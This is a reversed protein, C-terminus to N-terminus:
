DIRHGKGRVTRILRMGNQSDTKRRLYCIYVETKNASSEGILSAIEEKSVTSGRNELLCEMIKCEVPTLAIEHGGDSVFTKKELDLFLERDGKTESKPLYTVPASPDQALCSLVERRLLRVEFPRHLIMSCQRHSDVTLLDSHKTFGIMQRYCGSPPPTASDLDLLVVQSHDRSALADSVLVSLNLMKFEIELMRAFIADSSLIAVQYEMKM